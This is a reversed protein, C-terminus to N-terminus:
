YNVNSWDLALCQFFCPFISTYLAARTCFAYSVNAPWPDLLHTLTWCSLHLSIDCLRSTFHFVCWLSTQVCLPHLSQLLLVQLSDVQSSCWSHQKQHRSHPHLLSSPLPLRLMWLASRICPNSAYLACYCSRPCSNLAGRGVFCHSFGQCLFFFSASSHWCKLVLDSTM